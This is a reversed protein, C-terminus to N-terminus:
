ENAMGRVDRRDSVSVCESMRASACLVDSGNSIILSLFYESCSMYVNNSWRSRRIPRHNEGKFDMLLVDSIVEGAAFLLTYM